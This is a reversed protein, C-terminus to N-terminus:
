SGERTVTRWSNVASGCKGPKRTGAASIKAHRKQVGRPIVHGLEWDFRDGSFISAAGSCYNSSSDNRGCLFFDWTGLTPQCGGLVFSERRRTGLFLVHQFFLLRRWYLLVLSRVDPGPDTDRRRSPQGARKRDFDHQVYNAQRALCFQNRFGDDCAMRLGFTRERRHSAPRRSVGFDETEPQGTSNSRRENARGCEDDFVRFELKAPWSMM